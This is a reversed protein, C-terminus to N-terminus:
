IGTWRLLLPHTIKEPQTQVKGGALGTHVAKAVRRAGFDALKANWSDDILM